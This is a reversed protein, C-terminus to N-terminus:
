WFWNEPESLAPAPISSLAGAMAPGPTSSLAGAMLSGSVHNRRFHQCLAQAPAMSCLEEEDKYGYLTFNVSGSDNWLSSGRSPVAAIDIAGVATSLTVVAGLTMRICSGSIKGESM